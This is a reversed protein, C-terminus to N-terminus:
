PKDLRVDVLEHLQVDGRQGTSHVLRELPTGHENLLPVVAAEGKMIAEIAKRGLKQRLPDAVRTNWAASNEEKTMGSRIAAGCNWCDVEEDTATITSNGCFPCPLLDEGSM